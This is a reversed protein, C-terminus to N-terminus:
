RWRLRRFVSVASVGSLTLAIVSVLDQSSSSSWTLGTTTVTKTVWRTLTTSVYVYTTTYSTRGVTVYETVTGYRTVTVRDVVTSLDYQTYTSTITQYRTLTTTLTRTITVVAEGPVIELTIYETAVCMPGLFEEACNCVEGVRESHGICGYQSIKITVIGPKLATLWGSLVVKTEQGPRVEEPPIGLFLIHHELMDRPSWEVGLASPSICVSSSGSNRVLAHIIFDQGVHVRRDLPRGSEKDTLNVSIIELSCEPTTTTTTTEQVLAFEHGIVPANSSLRRQVVCAWGTEDWLHLSKTPSFSYLNSIYQYRDGRGNWVIEWGGASPFSGENYGDFNDYLLNNEQGFATLVFAVPVTLLLFILLATTASGRMSARFEARLQHM